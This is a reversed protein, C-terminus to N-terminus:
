DHHEMNNQRALVVFINFNLSPLRDGKEGMPQWPDNMSSVREIPVLHKSHTHEMMNAQSPSREAKDQPLIENKIWTPAANQVSFSSDNSAAITPQKL